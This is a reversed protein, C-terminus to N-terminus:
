TPSPMLDHRFAYATAAARSSLDLKTFINSVHRAVTKESIGLEHAIVRNTKGTAILRLVEVERTSLGGVTRPAGPSLDKMSALDPAAGLQQFVRCAADFEMRASDHDGLARCALGVLVRVRAGHYPADLSQWAKGALRLSALAARADGEALLVAGQSHRAVARLFPADFATAISSLEDAGARAAKVDNAVLLIEVSAGLLRARTRQDPEEDVVRCIATRAADVQGQALRLQALGPQPKRGFHSAQRYAEEAEAFEGRLRHLEGRQYFASGVAPQGPPHSLWECARQAEDLADPWAGHLQMLEARRVLCHGRYPVLDPQAACWENLATTWEQARRLDFIEYCAEIVSCYVVGIIIPSLEGATVAVMVEDLLAVGTAIEGSRILARGRGQRALAVLDAEGFRDGIKSAQEFTSYATAVDGESAAQLAVPLLLYGQEVCDRQGEDLLRRARALWGSGRAHQGKNRLIFFLWFACRAARECAGRAVWEHHARALLDASETDKGILFGSIALREIDEPDLPSDADAAALEAHAATWLQRAFLDRGRGVAAATTM